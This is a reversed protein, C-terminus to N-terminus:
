KKKKDEEAAEAAADLNKYIQPDPREKSARVNRPDRHKGKYKRPDASHEAM